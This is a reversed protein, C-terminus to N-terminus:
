TQFWIGINKRDAFSKINYDKLTDIITKEITM